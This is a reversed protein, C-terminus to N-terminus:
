WGPRHWGDAQRGAWARARDDTEGAARWNQRRVPGDTLGGRTHARARACMLALPHYSNEPTRYGLGLDQCMGFCKNQLLEPCM